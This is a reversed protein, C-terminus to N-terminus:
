ERNAERIHNFNVVQRGHKLAALYLDLDSTLIPCSSPQVALLASDTLGLKLFEDREGASVSAVYVERSVAMMKRMVGGIKARAPEAVQRALNSTETWVNPTVVIPAHRSLIDALLDFDALSFERLRKHSEIFDRSALGVVLLVLLSTDVLLARM